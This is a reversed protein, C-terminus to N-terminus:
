KHQNYWDVFKKVGKKIPTKPTFNLERQSRSADAYTTKVDGPQEPMKNILATKGVNYEITEILNKLSITQGGGLNYVKFGELNQISKIIGSVIDDVYTYDRSTSGDGFMNLKQGEDIKRTFNHIAMEPRQRPGYVTFFRLCTINLNYLHHFTHCLLEGAKKSAAYPSIPHDVFDDESFPAKKNNGYISSSSAFIMNTVGNNKMGELLNLTGDINVKSYLKPNLISPRVGAKAALHIVLDFKHSKFISNILEEDCINGEILKFNIKNRAEELNKDKIERAYFDDFNDIVVVENEILLEDLLNSGIFGAGGTLFIKM